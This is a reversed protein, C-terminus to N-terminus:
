NKYRSGAHIQSSSALRRDAAVEVEDLSSEEIGCSASFDWTGNPKLANLESLREHIFRRYFQMKAEYRYRAAVVGIVLGSFFVLLGDGVM